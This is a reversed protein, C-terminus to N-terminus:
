PSHGYKAEKKPTGAASTGHPNWSSPCWRAILQTTTPLSNAIVGVKM